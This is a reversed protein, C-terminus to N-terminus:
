SKVRDNPKMYPFPKPQRLIKRPQSKRNPRKSLKMQHTHDFLLDTLRNIEKVDFTNTLRTAVVHIMDRYGSFSIDRPDIHAKKAAGARLHCIMNYGAIGLAIEKLAMDASKVNLLEMEVTSKITRFDTEINWRLKYLALIDSIPLTLTTFLHLVIPKFGKKRLTTSILRGSIEADEPIDSHEKLTHRTTKWIIETDKPLKKRGGNAQVARIETLRCLVQHGLSQSAYAMSFTGFGRDLVIVSQHPLRMLVKKGLGVEGVANDGYMAGSEPRVAVGTVLDIAICSRITSWPSQREADRCAPFIKKLDGSERVRFDTGDINFVRFGKWTQNKHSSLIASAIGDAVGEVVQLPLRSRAQSLGSTNSSIKRDWISLEGGIGGQYDRVLHSLSRTGGIRQYM